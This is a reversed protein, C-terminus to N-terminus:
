ETRLLDHGPLVSCPGNNTALGTVLVVPAVGDRLVTSAQSQAISTCPVQVTCPILAGALDPQRVVAAAEVRLTATSSFTVLFGHPCTVTSAVTLVNTLM